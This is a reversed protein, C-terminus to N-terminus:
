QNTLKIYVSTLLDKTKARIEENECIILDVLVKTMIEKYKDVNYFEINQIIPLIYTCIPSIDYNINKEKEKLEREDRNKDIQKNMLEYYDKNKSVFDMLIKISTDMIRKYYNQKISATNNENFLHELIIYYNKISIQLQKFLSIINNSKLTDSIALRLEIKSNFQSSIIYISELSDLIKNLDEDGLIDLYKEILEDMLTLINLHIYCYLINVDILDSYQKYNNKLTKVDIKLFDKELSKDALKILFLVFPHLFSMNRMKESSNLFKICELGANQVKEEVYFIIKELADFYIGLHKYNYFFYENFLNGIKILLNELTTAYKEKEENNNPNDNLLSNSIESNASMSLPQNSNSFQNVTINNTSNNSQNNANNMSLITINLILEEATPLLVQTLLFAWFQEKKGILYLCSKTQKIKKNLCESFNILGLSRVKENKHLIFPPYCNLLIKFNNEDEVKFIFGDLIEMIKEPYDPIFAKLCNTFKEFILSIEDFNNKSITALVDLSQKQINKLEPLKVVEEFLNLIIVWGSKINKTDNIVLNNICFMIYEQTSINDCKKWTELFPSLFEKQFHYDKSEKKQIYKMSLQRLSDMANASNENDPSCGIEIFFESLVKWIKNWNYRSRSFLNINVIEVIKQLFFIKGLGNNKFEKKAVECTAYVFETLSTPDFALTKSFLKEFDDLTIDKGFNKTIEKEINITEDFDNLNKKNTIKQRKTKYYEEREGKSMSILTLYYYSKNIIDLILNWSGKCYRFDNNAKNLLEKICFINKKKLVKTEILGTMSCLISIINQKQQNLNLIGTIKVFYSLGLISQNFLVPLDSEEIVVIFMSLLPKIISNIFKLLYDFIDKENLQIFNGENFDSYRKQKERILGKIKAKEEEKKDNRKLFSENKIQNYIAILYERPINDERNQQDLTRIFNDVSIKEDKSQNQLINKLLLISYSLYYTCDVSAFLKPNDSYYKTAFCELIRDIKQTEDPLQFGTFYIKLAKIIDINKFNFTDTFYKLTKLSVETNDGLFEGINKKKLSPINKFFKVISKAQSDLSINDIYGITKLYSLGNAIKINFKKAATRLEDQNQFEKFKDKNIEIDQTYESPNITNNDDENSPISSRLVVEDSLFKKTPPYKLECKECISKLMSTILSLCMNILEFKEKESYNNSKKSYCDRVINSFTTFVENVISKENLESDYNAYLEIFYLYNRKSLNDLIVKKFLFPIKDTNLIKLLVNEYYYNIERKLYQKFLSCTDFFLKISPTYVNSDNLLSTKFIGEMLNGKIIRVFRIGKFIFFGYEEIINNIIELAMIKEKASGTKTLLIQAFYKLIKPQDKEFFKQFVELQKEEAFLFNKCHFTCIPLRIDISYHDATRRCINCWGFAGSKYSYENYIEPPKILRFISKSFDSERKPILPIIIKSIEAKAARYCITDVITKVTRCVVLDIANYKNNISNEILESTGLKEYMNMINNTDNTSNFFDNNINKNAIVSFNGSKKESSNLLSNTTSFQYYNNLETFAKKIVYDLNEKIVKQKKEEGDFKHYLRFYFAYIKTLTDGYLNAFMNKNYIIENVCEVLMYWIDDDHFISDANTLSDVILDLIKKEKNNFEYKLLSEKVSSLELSYKSLPTEGLLFSYKILLKLNPFLYKGLKYQEVAISKSLIPFYKDANLEYDNELNDLYKKTKDFVEQYYPNKKSIYYNVNEFIPQLISCYLKYMEASNKMRRPNDIPIKSFSM